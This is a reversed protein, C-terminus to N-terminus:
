RAATTVLSDYVSPDDADIVPFGRGPEAEWHMRIGPNHADTGDSPFLHPSGKVGDAGGEEV